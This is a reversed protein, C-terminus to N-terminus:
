QVTVEAIGAEVTSTKLRGVHFFFPGIPMIHIIIYFSM